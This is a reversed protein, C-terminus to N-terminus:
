GMNRRTNFPFTMRTTCCLFYADQVLGLMMGGKRPWYVSAHGEVTVRWRGSSDMRSGKVSRRQVICGSTEDQLEQAFWVGIASRVGMEWKDKTPMSESAGLELNEWV